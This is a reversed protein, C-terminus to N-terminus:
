VYGVSVASDNWHFKVGAVAEGAHIVGFVADLIARITSLVPRIRQASPRDLMQIGPREWTDVSKGGRCAAIDSITCHM